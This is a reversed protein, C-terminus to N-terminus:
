VCVCVCVCGCVWVCVCMFVCLMGYEAGGKWTVVLFVGGVWRGVRAGVRGGVLGRLWGGVLGRAWGGHEWRSLPFGDGDNLM